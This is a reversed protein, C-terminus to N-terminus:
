IKSLIFLFFNVFPHLLIESQLHMVEICLISCIPSHRWTLHLLDKEQHENWVLPERCTRAVQEPKLLQSELSSRTRGSWCKGGSKHCCPCAFSSWLVPKHSRQLSTEQKSKLTWATTVSPYIQKLPSSLSFFTVSFFGTWRWATLFAKSICNMKSPTLIKQM